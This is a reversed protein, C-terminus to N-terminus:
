RGAWHEECEDFKPSHGERLVIDWRPFRELFCEKIYEVVSLSHLEARSVLEVLATHYEDRSQGRAIFEALTISERHDHHVGDVIARVNGFMSRYFEVLLLACPQNRRTPLGAQLRDADIKIRQIKLGIETLNTSM